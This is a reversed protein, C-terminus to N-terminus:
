ATDRDALPMSALFATILKVVASPVSEQWDGGDRLAARIETASLRKSGSPELRAVPYGYGALLDVKRDEWPSFVRVYQTTDLPVYQAVLEGAHLPFPVVEFREGPVGLEGLAAVVFRQREYFTFPNERACHRVPNADDAFRSGPDPNTVAVVLRDHRELVLAFLEQHEKHLPQLRGTVCGFESM